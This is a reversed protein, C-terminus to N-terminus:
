WWKEAEKRADFLPLPVVAAPEVDRGGDLDDGELDDRDPEQRPHGDHQDPDEVLRPWTPTATARTRGVM